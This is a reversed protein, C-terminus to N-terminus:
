KTKRKSVSEEDEISRQLEVVREQREAIDEQYQRISDKAKLIRENIEHTSKKRQEDIRELYQEQLDISQRVVSLKSEADKYDSGVQLLEGKLIDNM